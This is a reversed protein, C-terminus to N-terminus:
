MLLIILQCIKVTYLWIMGCIGSIHTMLLICAYTCTAAYLQVMETTLLIMDYQMAHLLM